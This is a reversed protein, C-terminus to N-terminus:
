LVMLPAATPKCDRRGEGVSYFARSKIQSGDKSMASPNVHMDWGVFTCCMAACLLISGVRENYGVSLGSEGNRWIAM